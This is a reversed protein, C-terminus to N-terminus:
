RRPVRFAIYQYVFGAFFGALIMTIIGGSIPQSAGARESRLTLDIIYWFVGNLVLCFWLLGCSMKDSAEQLREPTKLWYDKNPINFINILNPLLKGSFLPLFLTIGAFVVNFVIATGYVIGLFKEKSMMESKHHILDPLQDYAAQSQSYLIFISGIWLFIFVYKMM